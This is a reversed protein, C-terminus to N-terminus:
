PSTEIARSVRTRHASRPYAAFFRGARERAAAHEGSLALAEIAIVEREEAFLPESFRRRHEECLALAERQNRRLAARAQEILAQEDAVPDNVRSSPAAAPENGARLSPTPPHAVRRRRSSEDPEVAAAKEVPEPLAEEVGRAPAPAAVLPEAEMAPPVTGSERLVPPPQSRPMAIWVVVAVVAAVVTLAAIKPAVASSGGGGGPAGIKAALASRTQAVEGPSPLDRAARELLADLKEESM